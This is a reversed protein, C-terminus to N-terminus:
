SMQHLLSSEFWRVRLLASKCDAAMLWEAVGGLNAPSHVVNVVTAAVRWSERVALMSGVGQVATVDVELNM